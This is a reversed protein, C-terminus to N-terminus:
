ITVVIGNEIYEAEGLLDLGSQLINGFETTLKQTNMNDEPPFIFSILLDLLIQSQKSTKGNVSINGDSYVWGEDLIELHYNITIYMTKPMIMELLYPATGTESAMQACVDTTDFKFIAHINASDPNFGSALDEPTITLELINIKLTNIYELNPLKKALFGLELMKNVISALEKDSFDLTTPGVVGEKTKGEYIANYDLEDSNSETPFINKLKDEASNTDLETFGNTVLKNENPSSYLTTMMGVLEGMSNIGYEGFYKPVIKKDLVFYGGVFLSVICIIAISFKIIFLWRKRKTAM